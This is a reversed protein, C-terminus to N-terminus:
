QGFSEAREAQLRGVFDLERGAADDLTQLEELAELIAAFGGEIALALYRARTQDLQAARESGCEPCRLQVHWCSGEGQEWQSAQVLPSACTRCFSHPDSSV